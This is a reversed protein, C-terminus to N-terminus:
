VIVQNSYYHVTGDPLPLSVVYLQKGPKMFVPIVYLPAGENMRDLNLIGEPNVLQSNRYTLNEILCKKVGHSSGYKEAKWDVVFQRYTEKEQENMM